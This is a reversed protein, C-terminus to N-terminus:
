GHWELWTVLVRKAVVTGHNRIGPSKQRAFNKQSCLTYILSLAGTIKSHSLSQYALYWAQLHDFYWSSRNWPLLCDVPRRRSIANM